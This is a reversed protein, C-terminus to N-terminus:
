GRPGSLSVKRSWKERWGDAGHHALQLETGQLRVVLFGKPKSEVEPTKPDRDIQPSPSMFVPYGEWEYQAFSHEHGHLILVVNYPEITQKLNALDEPTWWKELGWGRLGYHWMLIVPRGSDGVRLRLDEALFDLSNRPNNWPSERDYVQRHVNGPFLNLNVLHLPGWNWSYHYHHADYSFVEPGQRAKNREIYERQVVSFGAASENSLDHNGIAEFARFRLLGGGNPNFFRKYCEWHRPDGVTDVLDGAVLVARPEAVNGGFPFPKGPLENAIRITQETGATGWKDLHIQPDAMVFFTIDGDTATDAAHLRSGACAALGGLTLRALAERRSLAPMVTAAPQQM